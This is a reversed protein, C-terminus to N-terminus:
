KEEIKDVLVIKKEQIYEVFADITMGSPISSLSITLYGNGGANYISVGLKRAGEEDIIKWGM